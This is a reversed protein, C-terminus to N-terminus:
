WDDMTIKKSFRRPDPDEKLYEKHSARIHTYLNTSRASTKTASPVSSHNKEPTCSRTNGWTLCKRQKIAAYHVSSLSWVMTVTWTSVSACFDYEYQLMNIYCCNKCMKPEKAFTTNINQCRRSLFEREGTKFFVSASKKFSIHWYTAHM